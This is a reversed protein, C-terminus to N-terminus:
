KTIEKFITYIKGVNPDDICCREEDPSNCYPSCYFYCGKCLKTDDQPLQVQLKVGNYEFVEGVKREM